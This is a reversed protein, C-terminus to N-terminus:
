SSLAKSVLGMMSDSLSVKLAANQGEISMKNWTKRIIDILKEESHKAAFAELYHKVFVICIVDELAQTEPNRKLERKQLLTKVQEIHRNDFDHEKMLAATRESHFVGLQTRWKKYGTKGEPFNSRPSTWREIHQACAAIQLAESPTEVFDYLAELMRESYLLEKPHSNGNEDLDQNPDQANIEKIQNLIATLRDPTTM